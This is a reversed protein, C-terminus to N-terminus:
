DNHFEPLSKLWRIVIHHNKNSTWWFANDGKAHIDVGGLSYVWQTVELYGNLCANRFAGDDEAHINVGGLSYLWKAVDLHGNSCANRFAEESKVHIDVGGLSVLWQAVELHGSQCADRFAGDDEAHINVCGLSVLWQAVELHGDYCAFRFANENIDVGGLSVLWQAVKLHGNFCTWMFVDNDQAYIDVDGLSHLWQAVKLHGEYCAYRFADNKDKPFRKKCYYTYVDDKQSVIYEGLPMLWDYVENKNTLEKWKTKISTIINHCKKMENLTIGGDEPKVPHNFENLLRSLDPLMRIAEVANLTQQHVTYPNGIIVEVENGDEELDGLEILYGSIKSISTADVQKGDTTKLFVSTEM